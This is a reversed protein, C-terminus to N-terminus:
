RQAGSLIWQSIACREQENLQNRPPMQLASDATELRVMLLSCSPDAPEVRGRLLHDYAADAQVFVLGGAAYSADHCGGEVGCKPALTNAFINDFTPQYLPACTAPLDACELEAPCGALAGSLLVLLLAVVSQM